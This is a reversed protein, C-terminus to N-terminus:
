IQRPILVRANILVKELTLLAQFDSRLPLTAGQRLFAFAHHVQAPTVAVPAQFHAPIVRGFDWRCIKEVWDLTTQPLRNLILTQLIPAVVVGGDGRLAQFSDAWDEHWDFPYLGWYTQASRESTQLACKLTKTLALIKLVQPQFYLALLVTRQWGQRRNLPTDELTEAACNRAHFLLSYPNDQLLPPADEPLTVLTDTVLLTRSPKHFLAVEGFSGWGISVPGLIHYDFEESLPTNQAQPPLIHTRQPPFGLWSLPLNVPFSWQGPAVFVQAQPFARALPGVFVKHELGSVTPHIIYKVAGHVEVLEDILKLCEPTPAIAGYLLLGGALLKIVTLRIPVIVYLIGQVQELTWIKDKVVEVRLTKRKGYPYIPVVPWLPWSLDQSNPALDSM